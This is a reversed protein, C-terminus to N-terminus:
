FSYLIGAMLVYGSNNRLQKQSNAIAGQNAIDLASIENSLFSFKTAEIYPMLDRTLKYDLGLSIAKYENKQYSTKIGTLSTAIPGIQYSIGATIYHPDDFRKANQSCNQTSLNQSSNYDCSYIGSKPMMSSGWSGYSAGVTFGFYSFSAGLDYSFLDGRDYGFTSKANKIEAKEATASLLMELNDFDHEYNAGLSIINEYRAAVLDLATQKTVGVNGSSPTFSVGVQAGEFRPSYYSIKTADEMGDFSDDKIARFNSRNYASYDPSNTLYNNRAYFSKAGGGHGIPSQALLIFQPLKVNACNGGVCAPTSSAALMPLNVHELYKGNIGGAGRAFRAPGVKMMQNVPKNNGLEFKGIESERYLFAQDLNPKERFREDSFNMEFKAVAGYKAGSELKVGSKLYLQSDNNLSSKKVNNQSIGDALVYREFSSGQNAYAASFNIFGNAVFVPANTKKFNKEAITQSKAQSSLALLIFTLLPKNFKKLYSYIATESIFFSEKM